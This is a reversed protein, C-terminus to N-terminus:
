EKIADKRNLTNKYVLVLNDPNLNISKNQYTETPYIRIGDGSEKAIYEDVYLIYNNARWSCLGYIVLESTSALEKIREMGKRVAQKPSVEYNMEDASEVFNESSPIPDYVDDGSYGGEIERIVWYYYSHNLKIERKSNTKFQESEDEEREKFALPDNLKVYKYVKEGNVKFLKAYYNKDYDINNNRIFYKVQRDNTFICERFTNNTFTSANTYMDALDCEIFFSNKITAGTFQAHDFNCNNFTCNYIESYRFDAEKFDINDFTKGKIYAGSTNYENIIDLVKMDNLNIKEKFGYKNEIIISEKDYDILTVKKDNFIIKKGISDNFNFM